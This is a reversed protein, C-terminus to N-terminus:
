YSTAVWAPPDAPPRPRKPGEAGPPLSGQIDVWRNLARQYANLEQTYSRCVAARHRCIDALDALDSSADRLNQDSVELTLEVLQALAGGDVVDPGLLPSCTGILTWVDEAAASLAAAATDFDIATPM